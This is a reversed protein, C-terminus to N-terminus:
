RGISDNELIDSGGVLTNGKTITHNGHCYVHFKVRKVTAVVECYERGLCCVM